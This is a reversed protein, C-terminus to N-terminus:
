VEHTGEVGRAVRANTRQQLWHLAEEMKALAMQHEHCAYAGLQFSRMRDICVALLVEQTIGNVGVESIPGNQFRLIMLNGLTPEGDSGTTPIYAHYLHNAGGHGPEDEVRLTISENADNQKHDTLERM